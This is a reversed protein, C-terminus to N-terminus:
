GREVIVRRLKQLVTNRIKSVAQPTIGLLSAIEKDKLGLAFKLTIVRKQKYTLNSFADALYNNEMYDHFYEPDSSRLDVEPLIPIDNLIEGLTTTDGDNSIPGDFILQDRGEMKKYRRIQGIASFKITSTLFKFFRIHFFHNRFRVELEDQAKTDGDLTQLLIFINSPNEFFEQVIRDSFILHNVRIYDQFRTYQTDTLIV